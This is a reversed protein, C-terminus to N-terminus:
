FKDVRNFNIQTIRGNDDGLYEKMYVADELVNFLKASDDSSYFIGQVMVPIGYKEAMDIENSIWEFVFRKM